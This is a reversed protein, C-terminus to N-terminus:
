VYVRKKRYAYISYNVAYTETYPFTKAFIINGTNNNVKCSERNGVKNGM